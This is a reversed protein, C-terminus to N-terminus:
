CCSPFGHGAVVVLMVGWITLLLRLLFFLSGPLRLYVTVGVMVGALYQQLPALSAACMDCVRQPERCACAM